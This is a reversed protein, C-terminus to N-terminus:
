AYIQVHVRRCFQTPRSCECSCSNLWATRAKQQCTHPRSMCSYMCAHAHSIWTNTYTGLHCELQRIDSATVHADCTMEASDVSLMASLNRLRLFWHRSRFFFPTSRQTHKTFDKQHFKKQLYVPFKKNSGTKLFNNNPDQQSKVRTMKWLALCKLYIDTYMHQQQQASTHSSCFHLSHFIPLPRADSWKICTPVHCALVPCCARVNM